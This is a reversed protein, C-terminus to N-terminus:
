VKRKKGLEPLGLTFLFVMIMCAGGVIFFMNMNAGAIPGAIYTPIVVAGILQLTCAVGGATGAYLPGIEPLQVPISMLLPMLGGMAIGTICLCIALLAGQPAQWGFAAGVVSIITFLYLFPKNLGLRGALVPAFICGLLNGITVASGYIGAAVPDIGRGGLITPLFSSIIVVSAMIGMLCIGVFWVTRSKLVVKLCASIPITQAAGQATETEPPKKMLLLWLVAGLITLVAAIIYATRLGPLMATTGMGATMALTSAALFIGMMGGVKDPPFWSGIIKPGNTNLFATGFGTVLMSFFLFQYTGSGIRLFAGVASIVLGIGITLKIGFKDALLGAVLSLFIAPIMPASFIGTFQSPTLGLDAIIQPALPPLQYQAYSPSFLAFCAIILVVWRYGNTKESM